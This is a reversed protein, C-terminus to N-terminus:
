RQQQDNLMNHQKRKSSNGRVARSRYDNEDRFSWNLEQKM